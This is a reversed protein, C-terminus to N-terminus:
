FACNGAGRSPFPKLWYKWLNDERMVIVPTARLCKWAAGLIQKGARVGSGVIRRARARPARWWYQVLGCQIRGLVLHEEGANWWYQVLSPKHGLWVTCVFICLHVCVCVCVYICIVCLCLCVFVSNCIYSYKVCGYTWMWLYVDM